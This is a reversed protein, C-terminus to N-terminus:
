GVRQHGVEVHDLQQAQEGVTADLHEVHPGSAQHQNSEVPVQPHHGGGSLGHPDQFQELQLGLFARAQVAVAAALRDHVL